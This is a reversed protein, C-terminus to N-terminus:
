WTIMRVAYNGQDAVFLRGKSDLVMQRPNNFTANIGFTNAMGAVGSGVFRTVMSNMGVKSIYNGSYSSIYMNGAKDFVEGFPFMLKTLLAPGESVIGTSNGVETKYQLTNPNVSYVKQDPNWNTFFLQNINSGNFALGYVPSAYPFNSATSVDGISSVKRVKGGVETVFINGAMDPTCFFTGGFVASSNLGDASTGTVGSGAFRTVLNNNALDIRTLQGNRPVYLSQKYYCIGQNFFHHGLGDM